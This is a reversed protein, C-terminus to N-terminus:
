DLLDLPFPAEPDLWWPKLGVFHTTSSNMYWYFVDAEFGCRTCGYAMRDGFEDLEKAVPHPCEELDM